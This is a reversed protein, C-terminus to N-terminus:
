ESNAMWCARRCPWGLRNLMGLTSHEVPESREVEARAARRCGMKYLCESILEACAVAADDTEAGAGKGGRRRPDVSGRRMGDFIVIDKSLGDVVGSAERYRGRQLRRVDPVEVRGAGDAAQAGGSAGRDSTADDTSGPGPLSALLLCEPMVKNQMSM